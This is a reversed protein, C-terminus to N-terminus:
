LNLTISLVAVVAGHYKAAMIVVYSGDFAMEILLISAM